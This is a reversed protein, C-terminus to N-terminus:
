VSRQRAALHLPEQEPPSFAAPLQPSACWFRCGMAFSALSPIVARVNRQRLPSIPKDSM